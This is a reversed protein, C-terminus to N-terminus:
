VKQNFVILTVSAAAVIFGLMEPDADCFNIEQECHQGTSDQWNISLEGNDADHHRSPPPPRPSHLLRMEQSGQGSSLYM